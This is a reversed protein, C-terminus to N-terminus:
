VGCPTPLLFQQVVEAMVEPHTLHAQHGCREIEARAVNPLGQRLEGECAKGVLPDRDGCIMLM